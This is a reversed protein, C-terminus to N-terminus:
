QEGVGRRGGRRRQCAVCAAPGTLEAAPTDKVMQYVGAVAEVAQPTEGAALSNVREQM